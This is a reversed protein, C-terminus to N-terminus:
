RCGPGTSCRRPARGPNAVGAALPRAEASSHGTQGASTIAHLADRLDAPVPGVATIVRPGAQIEITRCRRTTKVFKRIFWGTRAEIRRSVALAAFVVSIRADISERNTAM